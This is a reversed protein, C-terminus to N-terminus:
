ITGRKVLSKKLKIIPILLRSKYLAYKIIKGQKYVASIKAKSSRLESLIERKLDDDKYTSKTYNILLQIIMMKYWTDVSSFDRKNIQLYNKNVEYIEKASLLYDTMNKITSNSTISNSNGLWYYYLTYDTVIINKAKFYLKYITALDEYNRGEPFRVKDFLNKKYLKNWIFFDLEGLFLKDIYSLLDCEYSDKLKDNLEINKTKGKAFRFKFNIIDYSMDMYKDLKELSDEEIWDDSDVFMIYEGSAIDLGANRASSLGGNAKHIVKIRSDIKAYEDCIVGCNDPSGDNVLIIETNKYTQNVVSEVCRKLYKEVKYVPIIVSVKRHM